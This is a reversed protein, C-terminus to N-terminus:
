SLTELWSDISEELMEYVQAFGEDGGYYPDPVDQGCFRQSYATMREVHNVAEGFQQSLDSLNNGDAAFIVDFDEFDTVQIQRSRLDDVYIGHKALEARARSDYTSGVHYGHTGASDVAIDLGRQEIKHRLLGEAMASRCINGMCVFLVKKM